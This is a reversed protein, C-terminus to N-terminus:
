GENLIQKIKNFIYPLEVENIHKAKELDKVEDVDGLSAIHTGGRHYCEAVEKLIYFRKFLEALKWAESESFTTKVLREASIVWGLFSNIHEHSDIDRARSPLDNLTFTHVYGFGWYWECDWSPEKLWYNTCNGDQGLLYYRGNEKKDLVAYEIM